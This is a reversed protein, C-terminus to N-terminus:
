NASNHVSNIKERILGAVVAHDNEDALMLPTEGMNNTRNLDCNRNLLIEAVDSRGSFAAYHLLTNGVQDIEDVNDIKALLRRIIEADDTKLADLTQGGFVCYCLVTIAVKEGECIAVIAASPFDNQAIRFKVAPSIWYPPLHADKPHREQRATEIYSIVNDPTYM